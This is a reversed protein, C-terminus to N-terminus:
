LSVDAELVAAVLKPRGSLTVREALVDGVKEALRDRVGDTNGVGNVINVAGHELRALGQMLARVVMEAEMKRSEDLLGEKLISDYLRLNPLLLLRVGDQGAIGLLGIIAGYHTGFPM